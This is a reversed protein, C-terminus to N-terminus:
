DSSDDSSSSGSGSSSSNSSSTGSTDSGGSSKPVVPPVATAKTTAPKRTNPRKTPKARSTGPGPEANDAVPKDPPAKMAVVTADLAPWGPADGIAPTFALHQWQKEFNSAMTCWLAMARMAADSDSPSPGRISIYKKCGTTQNKRHYPCSAQWGGYKLTKSQKPNKPTLRFVHWVQGTLLRSSTPLDQSAPDALEEAVQEAEEMVAEFDDDSGPEEESTTADAGKEESGKCPEPQKRKLLRPEQEVDLTLRRVERPPKGELIGQYVAETAGHPIQKIGKEFVQEASLLALLYSKGVSLGTTYFVKPAGAKCDYFRTRQSRRSMFAWTWGSRWCVQLLEFTSLQPLPLERPEHVDRPNLLPRGFVLRRLANHTLRWATFQQSREALGQHELQALLNQDEVSEAEICCDTTWTDAEASAFAQKRLCREVLASLLNADQPSAVCV